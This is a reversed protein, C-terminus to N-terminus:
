ELVPVPANRGISTGDGLQMRSNLGWCMAVGNLVACSTSQSVSLATVGSSLGVVAAPLVQTTNSGTGLQGVSGTGWCFVAGNRVACSHSQGTSIKQVGTNMTAVDVPIASNTAGAELTNGLQSNTNAGWCKMAGSVIACSHSHGVSVSTAGALLGDVQSPTMRWDLTNDGIQGSNNQGWCKVAGNQVACAHQTGISVDTVGSSLNPVSFPATQYETGGYGLQGTGNFGWCRLIGSQIACTSNGGVAIKSVGSSLGVVAVPVSSNVTNGTGLGGFGNFGWCFVAGAQVACSHQNGLSIDTVGATLGAVQTPTGSLSVIGNGLQGMNGQGWCLVAGQPTIACTHNQGAAIKTADLGVGGVVLSFVQTGTKTKYSAEIEFSQGGSAKSPTGSLTGNPALSLGEPLPDTATFVASGPTYASDGTVSVHQAFSYSYPKATKARPLVGASLSVSVEPEVKGGGKAPAPVALYYTAALSAGGASMLLAALALSTFTSKRMSTNM